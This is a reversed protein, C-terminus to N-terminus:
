KHRHGDTAPEYLLKAEAAEEEEIDKRGWNAQKPNIEQLTPFNRACKLSFCGEQRLIKGYRQLATLVSTEQM